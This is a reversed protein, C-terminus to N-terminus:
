MLLQDRKDRVPRSMVPAVCHVYGLDPALQMPYGAFGKVATQSLGDRPIKLVAPPPLSDPSASIMALAQPRGRAPRRIRRTCLGAQRAGFLSPISAQSEDPPPLGLVTPRFCRM